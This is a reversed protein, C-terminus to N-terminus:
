RSRAVCSRLGSFLRRNDGERALVIVTVVVNGLDDALAAAVDGVRQAQQLQGFRDLSIDM